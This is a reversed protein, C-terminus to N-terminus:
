IAFGAELVLFEEAADIAAQFADRDTAGSASFPRWEHPSSRVQVLGGSPPAYYIAFRQVPWDASTEPAVLLAAREGVNVWQAIPRRHDRVFLGDAFTAASGPGHLEEHRDKWITLLAGRYRRWGEPLQRGGPERAPEQAM